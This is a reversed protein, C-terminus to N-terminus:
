RGGHTRVNIGARKYLADELAHKANPESGYEAILLFPLEPSQERTALGDQMGLENAERQEATIAGPNDHSGTLVCDAWAWAYIGIRSDQDGHEHAEQVAKIGGYTWEWGLKLVDYVLGVRAAEEFLELAHESLEGQLKQAVAKLVEALDEKGVSGAVYSVAEKFKHERLLNVIHPVLALRAAAGVALGHSEGAIDKGVKDAAEQAFGGGERSPDEHDTPRKEEGDTIGAEIAEDAGGGDADDAAGATITGAEEDSFTVDSKQEAGGDRSAVMLTQPGIKGDGPLGHALQWARVKEFSIGAQSGACAGGTLKNFDTVQDPHKRNYVTAARSLQLARLRAPSPGRADEESGTNSDRGGGSPKHERDNM